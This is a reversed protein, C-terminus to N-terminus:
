AIINTTKYRLRDTLVIKSEEKEPKL